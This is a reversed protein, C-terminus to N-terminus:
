TFDFNEQEDEGNQECALTVENSGTSYDYDTCRDILEYRLEYVLNSLLLRHKNM